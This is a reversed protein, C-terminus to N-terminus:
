HRRAGLHRLGAGPAADLKLEFHPAFVRQDNEVIGIEVRAHRCRDIAGEVLGALTAGGRRAQDNGFLDVIPEDLPDNGCHFREDDIVCQLRAGLDSRDDVLM